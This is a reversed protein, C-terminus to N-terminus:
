FSSSFEFHAIDALRAQGPSSAEDIILVEDVLVLDSLVHQADVALDRYAATLGVGNGDDIRAGALLGLDARLVPEAILVSPLRSV